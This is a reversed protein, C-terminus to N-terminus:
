INSASTNPLKKLAFNIRALFQEKGLIEAMDIMGPGQNSGIILLRLPNM